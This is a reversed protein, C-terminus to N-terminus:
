VCAFLFRNAFGNTASTNDLLRRLEDPTIHGVISVHAGTTRAPSNKTMTGVNGRDWLDRVTRSLTNGPRQMVTLAQAMESETCLLRKDNEGEDLVEREGNKVAYIPDRVKWILGEGSSLGGDTRKLIWDPDVTEFIQRVRGASTGKRGQNSEGVLICFENTYHK